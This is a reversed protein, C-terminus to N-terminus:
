EDWLKSHVAAQLLRTADEDLLFGDQKLELVARAVAAVYDARTPYREHVSLRPDGTKLRDARTRPFPLRSGSFRGLMGAGGYKPDRVNWGSYTALPVSIEPLRVGAREIGDKDVAPVLTRYAPGARPPVHDAIGQTFWRPGPDLRLPRFMVQARAVGPITPFQKRWVPLDVLTGDAIRPITTPPPEVGSTVWRDMAVLLARLLPRHNLTNRTNLLQGRSSSTSNGHQAGTFFYIRVRPDIGADTTGQTDTHLLSGARCWYESSTESFFTRPLHGRKKLLAFVDGKQGTVPDVQPVSNFPFFDSAFLNDEHQSGHRTTQAFRYNFQGKGGGGVHPLAGDIVMRGAEDTNFGEHLFHHIFRGSQSIGFIYSKEIAGSLPNPTGKGDARAFRFFSLCDRVAVFGLGTVRPDRGTYHLEYIWGPRFGDRLYLHRPDPIVDGNNVRAFSWEDHPVEEAPHRRDARRTLRATGNDLSVAPYAVSNGWYFPHSKASGTVCLEAYIPSTITSGDKNRAIPLEVMIRDGGPRVDGNWGCWLISYGQRMLFGNGADAAKLPNNRNSVPGNYAGIALKNGRNNVDYLVRGNGRRPDTPKLLFFESRFAVRGRKNLPALGLDTVRRNLEHQPDIEIHLWGKIREYPGTNGFHQGGAFPNRESIELRVVEARVSAAGSLVVLGIIVRLM